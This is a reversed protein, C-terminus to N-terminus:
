EHRLAEVPNLNSARWAPYLGSLVCTVVAFGVVLFGLMVTPASAIGVYQGVVASLIFGFGVGLVGGVVGTLAAETMFLTLIDKSKAGIAKMTGIERTREMVSVTMTNIIGIGAVLLSIAAVGGLVAEITGIVSSVMEMTSAATMVRVGDIEESIMEALPEVADTDDVLVQISDYEGDTEFFQECTKLPIFFGNDVNSMAGGTEDLIGVVRVTLEKEEGDIDATVKLRDGVDVYQKGDDDPFAINYGVVVVANDSRIIPRGDLFDTGENIEFYTETVGTVSVYFSDGKLSYTVSGGSVTPAVLEVDPLKEIVEVDRWDLSAAAGQPPGMRNGGGWPSVTITNAGLSGLQDSIENSMGQTIAILGTVAACGILIGILNLVFRFKRENLGEFSMWVVDTIKM